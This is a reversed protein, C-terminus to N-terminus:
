NLTNLGIKKKYIMLIIIPTNNLKKEQPFTDTVKKIKKYWFPIYIGLTIVSLLLVSIWSQKKFNDSM